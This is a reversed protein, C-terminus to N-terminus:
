CLAVAPPSVSGSDSPGAYPLGSDPSDTPAWAPDMPNVVAPPSDLSIGDVPNPCVGGSPALRLTLNDITPRFQRRTRM